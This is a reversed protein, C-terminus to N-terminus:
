EEQFLTDWMEAIQEWTYNEFVFERLQEREELEITEAYELAALLTNLYEKKKDCAFGGQVTETLASGNIIVPLAGSAQARLGTICFTEPFTCPYAWISAKEYARNLEEHGVRGHEKVSLYAYEEIKKKINKESQSLSNPNVWGYYIDLTADPFREKVKPWLDLLITLGRHYNSGYICSHPNKRNTIPRFQEPEIANGFVQKFTLLGPSHSGWQKRQWDSLWLVGDFSQIVHSSLKGPSTDHPWLYVKDARKRLSPGNLPRRWSIAIDFHPPQHRSDIDIYRPNANEQSHPSDPPPNGLVTVQYGLEALRKSMYIVAEESGGIGSGISEPDWHGVIKNKGTFIGISSPKEGQLQLIFLFISLIFIKFARLETSWYTIFLKQCYKSSTAPM